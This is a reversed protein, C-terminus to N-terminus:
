SYFFGEPVEKNAVYKIKLLNKETMADWLYPIPLFNIDYFAPQLIVLKQKHFM